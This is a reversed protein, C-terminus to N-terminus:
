LGRRNLVEKLRADAADLKNKLYDMEQPTLDREDGGTINKIDEIAKAAEIILQAIAAIAGVTNPSM